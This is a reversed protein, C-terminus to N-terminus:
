PRKRMRKRGKATERRRSRVEPLARVVAAALSVLATLFKLVQLVFEM